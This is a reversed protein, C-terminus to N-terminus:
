LDRTTEDRNLPTPASDEPTNDSLRLKKKRKHGIHWHPGFPCKYSTLGLVGSRECKLVAADAAAESPYKKKGTHAAKRLESKKSM